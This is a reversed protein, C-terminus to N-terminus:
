QFHLSQLKMLIDCLSNIKIANYKKLLSEDIPVRIDGNTLYITKIKAESFSIIDYITDGVAFIIDEPRLSSKELALITPEPDPKGRIVDDGSILIDPNINIKELVKLATIKLSSTVILIKVQNKKLTNILQIACPMPEAYKMIYPAFISSKIELLRKALENKQNIDNIGAKEILFLAIDMARKGLLSEMDIKLKFGLQKLSLEWAIKHAKATSALTGDLDFVAGKM